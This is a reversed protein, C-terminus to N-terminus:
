FRKKESVNKRRSYTPGLYRKETLIQIGAGFAAEMAAATKEECTHVSLITEMYDAGARRSVRIGKSPVFV